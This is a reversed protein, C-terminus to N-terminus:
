RWKVLLPIKSGYDATLILLRSKELRVVAVEVVLAAAALVGVLRSHRLLVLLIGVDVWSKCLDFSRTKEGKRQEL